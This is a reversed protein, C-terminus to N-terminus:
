PRAALVDRVKVRLQTPTFPKQMFAVPAAAGPVAVEDRTYGSMVVVRMAPQSRVLHTALEVGGMGPMSADTLLLDIRHAQRAALEIAEDAAGAALLRYGQGRLAALVLNRVPVEDEVVLITAESAAAAPAEPAEAAPPFYLRFTTGRNLESDVFICGGSQQVTGYVMALGLGTGKGIEKTTFFPEFLRARVEASMGQGTDSVSLEVYRGTTLPPHARAFAEDADITRARITLRGGDPMADRANVALNLVAQEIQGADGHIHSLGPEVDTHLVINAGLVRQLLRGLNAVSEQLAFVRPTLRQRRSFALLQRTVSEAREAARRIEQVDPRAPHGSELASLALETYGAIATLANNLDHAVGGALRGISELRQATRLQEELRRRDTVDQLTGVMRLPAGRDDCVIEARGHVWRVEGDARVIRHELDYPSRSEVAAQSAARVAERDDPHVFGFFAAATAACGAPEVGFIRYTEASWGLGDSGDLEAVWSGIHAVAQAKELLAIRDDVTAPRDDSL